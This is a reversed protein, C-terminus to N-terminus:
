YEIFVFRYLRLESFAFIVLVSGKGLQPLLLTRESELVSILCLKKQINGFRTSLDMLTGSHARLQKLKQNSLPGVVKAVHTLLTAYDASPSGHHPVAM